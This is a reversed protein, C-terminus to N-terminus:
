LSQMKIINMLIIGDKNKELKEVPSRWTNELIAGPGM